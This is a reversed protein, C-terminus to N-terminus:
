TMRARIYYPNFIAVRLVPGAVSCIANSPTLNKCRGKVKEAGSVASPMKCEFENLVVVM